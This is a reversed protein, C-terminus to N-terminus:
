TFSAVLLEIKHLFNNGALQDYNLSRFTNRLYSWPPRKDADDYASALLDGTRKQDDRVTQILIIPNGDLPYKVCIASTGAPHGVMIAPALIGREDVECPNSYLTQWLHPRCLTGVASIIHQKARLTLFHRLEELNSSLTVVDGERLTARIDHVQIELMLLTKGCFEYYPTLMQIRLM